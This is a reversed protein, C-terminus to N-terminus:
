VVSKRDRALETQNVLAVSFGQDVLREVYGEVAGIPVGCMPIPDSSSKDRSTLTINLARAVRVADEFFVEYFDGVQCFIIADAYNRKFELYQRLMPPLDARLTVPAETHPTVGAEAYSSDTNM